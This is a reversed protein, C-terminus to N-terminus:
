RVFPNSVWAKLRQSSFGGEHTFGFRKKSFVSSMKLLNHNLLHIVNASMDLTVVQHRTQRGVQCPNFVHYTFIWSFRYFFSVCGDASYANPCYAQHGRPHGYGSRPLPSGINGCRHYIRQATDTAVANSSTAGVCVDVSPM